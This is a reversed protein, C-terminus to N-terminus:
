RGLKISKVVDEFTPIQADFAESTDAYGTFQYLADDKLTSAQFLYVPSEPIEGSFSFVRLTSSLEDIFLNQHEILTVDPTIAIFDAWMLEDAEEISMDAFFEFRVLNIEAGDGSLNGASILCDVGPQQCFPNESQDILVWNGPYEISFDDGFFQESSTSLPVLDAAGDREIDEIINNFVNSVAPGLLALLCILSISIIVVPTLITGLARWGSYRHVTRLIMLTLWGGYIIMGFGVISGIVGPIINLIAFLIGLPAQAAAYLYIQHNFSGQGGFVKALGYLLISGIGFGIVTAIPLIILMPVVELLVFDLPAGLTIATILTFFGTIIAAIFAGIAMWLYATGKSPNPEDGLIGEYTALAKDVTLGPNVAQLWISFM